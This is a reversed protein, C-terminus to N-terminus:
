YRAAFLKGTHTDPSAQALAISAFGGNRPVHNSNYYKLYTTRSIQNEDANCSNRAVVLVKSYTTPFSQQNSFSDTDHSVWSFCQLVGSLTLMFETCTKTLALRLAKAAAFFTSAMPLKSESEAVSVNDADISFNTNKARPLAALNPV